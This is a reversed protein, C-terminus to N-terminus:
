IKDVYTRVECFFFNFDRMLKTLLFITSLCAMGLVDLLGLEDVGMNKLRDQRAVIRKHLKESTGKYIRFTDRGNIDKPVGLMAFIESRLFHLFEHLYKFFPLCQDYKNESILSQKSEETELVVQKLREFQERLIKEREKWDESVDSDLAM